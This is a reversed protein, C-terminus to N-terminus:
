IISRTKRGITPCILRSILVIESQSSVGLFDWAKTWGAIETKRIPFTERRKSSLLAAKPFALMHFPFKRNKM